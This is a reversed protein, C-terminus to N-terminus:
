TAILARADEVAAPLVEALVDLDVDRGCSIRIFRDLGKVVPKRVFVDRM